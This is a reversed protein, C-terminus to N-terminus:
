VLDIEVDVHANGPDAGPMKLQGQMKLVHGIRKESLEPYFPPFFIIEVSTAVGFGDLEAVEVADEVDLSILCALCAHSGCSSKSAVRCFDGDTVWSLAMLFLSPVLM